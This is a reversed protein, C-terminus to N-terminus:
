ITLACSLRLLTSPPLSDTQRFSTIRCATDPILFPPMQVIGVIAAAPLQVRDNNNVTIAKAAAILPCQQNCPTGPKKSEQSCNRWSCNPGCCGCHVSACEVNAACM